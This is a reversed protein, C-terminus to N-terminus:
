NSNLLQLHDKKMWSNALAIRVIKKFNKLYKTTTNHACKRETKLHLEYSRVFQHNIDDLPMDECKYQWRMFSKTHMYCTEYRQVTEPAFDIGILKRTKGNHEQFEKLITRQNEIKGVIREKIVRPTVEQNDMTM